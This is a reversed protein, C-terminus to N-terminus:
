PQPPNRRKWYGLRARVDVGRKKVKVELKHWGEEDVDTPTYSLLYRTGIETLIQQFRPELQSPSESYLLAGGTLRTAEQLFRIEPEIEVEGTPTLAKFMSPAMIDARHVSEDPPPLTTVAYVVANSEQMLKLVEVDSVWSSTDRGDTFLLLVPRGSGEALKLGAYLGDYLPTAGLAETLALAEISASLDDELGSRLQICSSITLLAARDKQRLGELLNRAALKLRHVKEGRVSESTDFVLIMSLPQSESQLLRIDQRVGDDYVEFDEVRLDRVAKGDRGVFVDIQVADVQARFVPQHQWCMMSFVLLQIM